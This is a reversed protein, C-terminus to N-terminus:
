AVLAAMLDHHRTLRHNLRTMAKAHIQSVRQETVRLVSGIEKLTLEHYYYLSIVHKERDPLRKVAEALEQRAAEFEQQQYPDDLRDGPTLDGLHTGDSMGAVMEDLSLLSSRAMRSELAELEELSVGLERAVEADTPARGLVAELAAYARRLRGEDARLSRPAWDLRRLADLVAGRIRPAAFGEFPVGHAPDFREIADILGLLAHGLLDDKSVCGWPTIQLRDVARRALVAYEAILRERLHPARTRAYDRWWLQVDQRNM